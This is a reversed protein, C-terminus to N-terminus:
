TGDTDRHRTKQWDRYTASFNQTMIIQRSPVLDRYTSSFDITMIFCDLHRAFFLAGSRRSAVRNVKDQCCSLGPACSKILPNFEEKM